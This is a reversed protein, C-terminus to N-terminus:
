GSRENFTAQRFQAPSLGHYRRFARRFTRADGYGVRRAVEAVTLNEVLLLRAARAARIRGIFEQVTDGTTRKLVRSLHDPTWGCRAALERVTLPKDCNDVIYRTLEGLKRQGSPALQLSLGSESLARSLLGVLTILHGKLVVKYGAAKQRHEEQMEWITREVKTRVQRSLHLRRYSFANREHGVLEGIMLSTDAELALMNLARETLIVNWIEAPGAVTLDYGHPISPNVIFLDGESVTHVTPGYRHLLTGAKVYVMEFFEHVHLGTPQVVHHFVVAIDEEGSFHRVRPISQVREERAM